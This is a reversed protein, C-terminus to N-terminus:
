HIEASTMGLEAFKAKVANKITKELTVGVVLQNARIYEGYTDMWQSEDLTLDVVVSLHLKGDNKKKAM